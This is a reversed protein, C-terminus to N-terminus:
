NLPKMTPAKKAWHKTMVQDFTLWRTYTLEALKILIDQSINPNKKAEQYDHYISWFELAPQIMERTDQKNLM